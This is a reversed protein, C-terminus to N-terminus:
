QSGDLAFFQGHSWLGFRDGSGAEADALAVLEYFVARNILAEMGGRVMVYPRPAGSADTAIRMPHASDVMVMDETNLRFGMCRDTGQGESILEVAVFPADDVTIGVKEVPTVLVYSGDAERRLISAFLKVMAPRGIPTGLYHWSGDRAIRMDIPGCYPPNWAHVPPLKRDKMAAALSALSAGPAPPPTVKTMRAQEHANAM